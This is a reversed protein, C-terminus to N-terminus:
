APTGRVTLDRLRGINDFSGFGVRGSGFTTDAATMLPDRFGDLYVAIEGTAPQHVLRVRHWREDTVAPAAGESRGNWQHDLRERDANDVKFIGNHPYITNDTSLHAYYFETDSRWGFLIIVDRNTEAVPTDLRVEADVQVAGFAPGATLVAYEFPRRPGPRAVGPEALIVQEGTFRWLQPTVPQWNTPRMTDRVRTGGVPGAAYERTGTVKWIKGNAKALLYLEGRADTGFRLDVREPDGPAGPGSLDQMRVPNGAADFLALRHIPALDRGRRMRDAETYLVRGDVLDGFVYKGRLAPVDRGRYVFGGAVAVGVDATCNWGPAPEHDYAAVPYTYGHDADDPPLPLIRDCPNTATRDFVFAGERESWGLNDGARVEYIAEIAHEGIHGLYMRGTARDWSFRHPDRMGIAYIEGLAGPRGVFPNSPPIGYRGNPANSGAPDIRLLKGHPMALNQPDTNRVGVGGDGAAVYLLGHEADGRRATPNFNIEQIGHVRGGFGIRLVERRSGAFTDAAPDTATWETVIGHFVTNPQSYDPVAPNSPASETHVTYFRGNRGFDPHFAVYGFGQGLGQGSFFRPAFTGAVDLYVRPVGDRVLHLSGNLDPVARRGSGDPLEMITNIRAQRMLRPDTPAPTPESKPFTAYESLVLGLRSQIQQEPVPDYIADAARAPGAAVLTSLVLGAAGLLATGVPRRLRRTSTRM